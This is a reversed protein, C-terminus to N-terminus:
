LQSRSKAYPLAAPNSVQRKILSLKAHLVVRPDTDDSWTPPRDVQPLKCMVRGYALYCMVRGYALYCVLRRFEAVTISFPSTSSECSHLSKSGLGSTPVEM